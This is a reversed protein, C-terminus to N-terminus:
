LNVRNEVPKHRQTWTRWTVAAAMEVSPFYGILARDEVRDEATVSRWLKGEPREIKVLRITAIHLGGDYMLYEGGFAVLQQTPTWGMGM